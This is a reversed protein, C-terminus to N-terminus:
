LQQVCITFMVLSCFSHLTVILTFLLIKILLIHICLKATYQSKKIKSIVCPFCILKTPIYITWVHKGQPKFIFHPFTNFHKFSFRISPYYHSIGKPFCPSMYSEMFLGSIFFIFTLHLLYAQLAKLNSITQSHHCSFINMVLAYGWFPHYFDWVLCEPGKDEM